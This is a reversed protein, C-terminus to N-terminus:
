HRLSVFHLYGGDFLSVYMSKRQWFQWKKTGDKAKAEEKEAIALLTEGAGTGSSTSANDISPSESSNSSAGYIVDYIEDM